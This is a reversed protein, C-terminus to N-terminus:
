IDCIHLTFSWYRPLLFSLISTLSRFHDQIPCIMQKCSSRNVAQNVLQLGKSALHGISLKNSWSSVKAQLVKSSRNVAQNVLQLGKSALHGISLKNSWSSAKAQLIVSQCSTQGAPSRQKCSSRNVAYKVLQLGNPLFSRLASWGLSPPVPDVGDPLSYCLVPWM